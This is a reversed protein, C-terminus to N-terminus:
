GDSTIGSLMEEIALSYRCKEVFVWFVIMYNEGILFLRHFTLYLLYWNSPQTKTIIIAHSCEHLWILKLKRRLLTTAKLRPPRSALSHLGQTHPSSVTCHLHAWLAPKPSLNFLEPSKLTSDLLQLSQLWDSWCRLFALINETHQKSILFNEKQSYSPFGRSFFLM